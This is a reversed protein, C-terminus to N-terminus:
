FWGCLKCFKASIESSTLKELKVDSNILIGRGINMPEINDSHDTTGTLALQALIIGMIPVYKMCWGGATLVIRNSSDPLFDLVIRGSNDSVDELQKCLRCCM